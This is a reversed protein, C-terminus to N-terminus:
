CRALWHGAVNNGEYQEAKRAFFLTYIVLGVFFLFIGIFFFSFSQLYPGWGLLMIGTGIGMFWVLLKRGGTGKPLILIENIAVMYAPLVLIYHSPWSSPSIFLIATLFLSFEFPFLRSQINKTRVAILALIGIILLKIIIGVSHAQSDSLVPIDLVKHARGYKEIGYSTFHRGLFADMSQNTHYYGTNTSKVEGGSFFPEIVMDSWSRFFDLSKQPTYFFMPVVVLFLLTFVLTYAAAKFKRKLVLYFVFFLPTTKYAIAFALFLASKVHKNLYLYFMSVLICLLIILNSQGMHINTAFLALTLVPSLFTNLNQRHPQTKRLIDNMVVISWLYFAVNAIGWLLSSFWLAFPTFLSMVAYFFASMSNNPVTVFVDQDLHRAAVCVELYGKFDSSGRIAAKNVGQFLNGVMFIIILVIYLRNKPNLLYVSMNSHAVRFLDVISKYTTQKM